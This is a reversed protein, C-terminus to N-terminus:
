LKRFYMRYRPQRYWFQLYMIPYLLYDTLWFPTRFHIDDTILSVSESVADVKHEHHWYNLFFPCQIGEDVFIMQKDNKQFSIIKSKWVQRFFLFNLEVHVEAGAHNGEYRLLRTPPFPPSVFTLLRQDFHEAVTQLPALVQTQILIHM